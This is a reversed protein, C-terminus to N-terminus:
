WRGRETLIKKFIERAAPGAYGAGEVKRLDSFTAVGVFEGTGRALHGVFWGVRLSRDQSLFGSDTKGHM